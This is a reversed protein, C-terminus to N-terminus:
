QECYLARMSAKNKLEVAGTYVMLASVDFWRAKRVFTGIDHNISSMPVKQMLM